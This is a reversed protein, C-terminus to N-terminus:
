TRWWNPDCGALTIQAPQGRTENWAVFKCLGLGPVLKQVIVGESSGLAPRVPEEEDGGVNIGQLFIALLMLLISVQLIYGTNM